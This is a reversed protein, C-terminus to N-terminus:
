FYFETINADYRRRKSEAAGFFIEFADVFFEGRTKICIHTTMERDGGRVVETEQISAGGHEQLELM